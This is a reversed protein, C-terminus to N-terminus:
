VPSSPTYNDKFTLTNSFFLKTSFTRGAFNAKNKHKSENSQFLQIVTSYISVNQQKSPRSSQPALLRPNSERRQCSQKTQKQQDTTITTTNKSSKKTWFVNKIFNQLEMELTLESLISWMNYFKNVIMLTDLYM